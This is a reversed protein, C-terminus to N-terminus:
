KLQEVIRNLQEVEDILANASAKILAMISDLSVNSDLALTETSVMTEANELKLYQSYAWGIRGGYRVQWWKSASMDLVEVMAGKPIQCIVRSEPSSSPAQRLNLVKGPNNVVATVMSGVELTNNVTTAEANRYDIVKLEGWHDWHNLESTVVGYQAGKAEICTNSGIYVGVHHIKPKNGKLFVLSGPLLTHGDTPAGGVLEGKYKCYDTYLYLAHHAVSEGLQFLAWRILGSCDTVMRGVWKSGYMRSMTRNSDATEELKEQKEATWLTGWTGYIYGWQEEYPIKVKALFDNVNVMTGGVKMLETGPYYFTLIDLYTKGAAAMAKAGRQSMGVGHGTRKTSTDWPDDKEILYPRIGGWRSQSSATRGGNSASYVADIPKGNYTLILGDTEVAAQIAYPYSKENYRPARFAQDTASSDSITKGELVGKKVAFTRAAIAQAKCAELASNGIESAVVASIYFNFAVSVIDDVSCGYYEANEQRTIKVSIMEEAM